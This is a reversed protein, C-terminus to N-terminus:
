EQNTSYNCRFNRGRFMKTFDEPPSHRPSCDIRCNEALKFDELYKYTEQSSLRVGNPFARRLRKKLDSIACADACM